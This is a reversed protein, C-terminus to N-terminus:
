FRPRDRSRDELFICRLVAGFWTLLNTIQGYYKRWMYLGQLVFDRKPVTRKQHKEDHKMSACMYVEQMCHVKLPAQVFKEFIYWNIEFSTCRMM